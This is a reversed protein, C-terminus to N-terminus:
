ARFCYKVIDSMVKNTNEKGVFGPLSDIYVCDGCSSIDNYQSHSSSYYTVRKIIGNENKNSMEITLDLYKNKSDKPSFQSCMVSSVDSIKKGDIQVNLEKKKTDINVVVIAMGLKERRVNVCLM